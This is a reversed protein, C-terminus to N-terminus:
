HQKERHLNGSGAKQKKLTLAAHSWSTKEGKPYGQPFATVTLYEVAKGGVTRVSHWKNVPVFFVDGFKLSACRKAKDPRTKFVVPEARPQFFAMINYLNRESLIGFSTVGKTLWRLQSFIKHSDRARGTPPGGSEKSRTLVEGRGKIMYFIQEAEPHRHMPSAHGPKIITLFTETCKASERPILFDNIHTKFVFRKGKSYFIKIFRGKGM